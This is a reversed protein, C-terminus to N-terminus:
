QHNQSVTVRHRHHHDQSVHKDSHHQSQQHDKSVPVFEQQHDQLVPNDTNITCIHQWTHYYTKGQCEIFYSRPTATKTTITGKIYQNEERPSLFLIKQGPELKSLLNQMIAKTM